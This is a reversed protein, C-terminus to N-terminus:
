SVGVLKFVAIPRQHCTKRVSKQYGVAVFSPSRFIAGMIRPDLGAPPPCVVRVDDVTVSGHEMAIARAKGRALVLWKMRTQKFVPLIDQEFLDAM